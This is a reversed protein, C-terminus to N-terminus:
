GSLDVVSLNPLFPLILAPLLGNLLFTVAFAAIGILRWHRVTPMLRGSPALLEVGMFALFIPPLSLAIATDFDM